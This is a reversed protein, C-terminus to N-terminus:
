EISSAQSPLALLRRERCDVALGLAALADHGLLADDSVKEFGFAADLEDEDSDEDEDDADKEAPSLLCIAERGLVMVSARYLAAECQIGAATEFVATDAEARLNLEAVQAGRLECDTSGTDVLARVTISRGPEEPNSVVINAYTMGDLARAPDFPHAALQALPLGGDKLARLTALRARFGSGRSVSFAVTEAEAQTTCQMSDVLQWPRVISAPTDDDLANLGVIRDALEALSCVGVYSSRTPSALLYAVYSM